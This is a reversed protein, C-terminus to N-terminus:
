GSPHAPGPRCGLGVLAVLAGQVLHVEPAGPVALAWPAVLSVQAEQVSPLGPSGPSGRGSPLVPCALSALCVPLWPHEQFRQPQSSPHALSGLLWPHSPPQLGGQAM